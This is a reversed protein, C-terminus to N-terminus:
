LVGHNSNLEAFPKVTQWVRECLEKDGNTGDFETNCLVAFQPWIEEILYDQRTRELLKDEPVVNSIGERLIRYWQKNLAAVDSSESFKKVIQGLVRAVQCRANGVANSDKQELLTDIPTNYIRVKEINSLKMAFSEKFIVDLDELASRVGVIGIRRMQRTSVKKMEKLDVPPTARNALQSVLEDASQEWPRAVGNGLHFRTMAEGVEVVQQDTPFARYGTRFNLQPDRALFEMLYLTIAGTSQPFHTNSTIYREVLKDSFRPTDTGDNAAVFASVPKVVWDYKSCDMAGVLESFDSTSENSKGSFIRTACGMSHSLLFVAALSLVRSSTM